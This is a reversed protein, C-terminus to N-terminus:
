KPFVLPVCYMSLFYKYDAPMENAHIIMEYDPTFDQHGVSVTSKGVRTKTAAYALGDLLILGTEDRFSCLLEVYDPAEGIVAEVDPIKEQLDKNYEDIMGFYDSFSKWNYDPLIYDYPKNLPDGIAVESARSLLDKIEPYRDITKTYFRRGAKEYGAISQGTLEGLWFGNRELASLAEKSFRKITPAETESYSGSVDKAESM